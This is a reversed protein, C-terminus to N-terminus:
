IPVAVSAIIREVVAEIAQRQNSHSYSKLMVRHAFVQVALTKVDDPTAFNRGEIFALSQVARSLAIAGRTSVGVLLEESQRTAETLDLIYRDIAEDVRVSSVQKQIEVIQEMSLVPKISEIPKATQHTRLVNLESNRDPYGVSLRFLFRDLQSELLPYTGEFETPNETAIVMFPKPLPYTTGDVSVQHEEMAELMASQTRPTTRNIEDALLINAFVAGQSFRFERSVSDYISSGVIDAPLLDPTFQIRQFKGSISKAITQAILTKGVGPVDELLVHEGAFLAALCRRVVDKKGFVARAINQELQDILVSSSM